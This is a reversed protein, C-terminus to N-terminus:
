GLNGMRRSSKKNRGDEERKAEKEGKRRTEKRSRSKGGGGEAKAVRVEGVGTEMAEQVGRSMEDNKGGRNELRNRSQLASAVANRLDGDM